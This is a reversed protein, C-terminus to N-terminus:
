EMIFTRTSKDEFDEVTLETENGLSNMELVKVQHYDGSNVDLYEIVLGERVLNGPGIEVPEDNEFDYGDWALSTKSFFFLSIFIFILFRKKM